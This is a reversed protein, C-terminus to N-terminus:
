KKKRKKSKTNHTKLEYVKKFLRNVCEEYELVETNIVIEKKSFKSIVKEKKLLNCDIMIQHYKDYNIDFNIFSTRHLEQFVYLAFQFPIHRDKFTGHYEEISKSYYLKARNFLNRNLYEYREINKRTFKNYELFQIMKKGINIVDELDNKNEIIQTGIDDDKLKEAEILATHVYSLIVRNKLDKDYTIKNM